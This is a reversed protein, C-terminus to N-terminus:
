FSNLYWENLVGPSLSFVSALLYLHPEKNFVIHLSSRQPEKLYYNFFVSWFSM